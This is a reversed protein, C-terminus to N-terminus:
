PQTSTLAAMLVSLSHPITGAQQYRGPNVPASVEVVIQEGRRQYGFYKYGLRDAAVITRQEILGDHAKPLLGRQAKSIASSADKDGSEMRFEEAWSESFFAVGFLNPPTGLCWNKKNASVAHVFTHLVEAPPGLEFLGELPTPFQYEQILGDGEVGLWYLDAPEDWATRAALNERLAASVSKTFDSM